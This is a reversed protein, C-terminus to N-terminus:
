ERSRTRRIQGPERSNLGLLGRARRLAPVEDTRPVPLRYEAEVGEAVLLQPGIHQPHVFDHRRDVRRGGQRDSELHVDVGQRRSDDRRQFGALDIQRVRRHGDLQQARIGDDAHLARDVM